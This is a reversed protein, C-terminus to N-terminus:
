MCCIEQIFFRLSNENTRLYNRGNCRDMQKKKLTCKQGPTKDVPKILEWKTASLVVKFNDNPFVKPSLPPDDHHHADSENTKNHITNNQDDSQVLHPCFYSFVHDHKTKLTTYIHKESMKSGSQMM